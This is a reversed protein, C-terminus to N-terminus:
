GNPRQGLIERLRDIEALDGRDLAMRLEERVSDEVVASGAQVALAPQAIPLDGSVSPIPPQAPVNALSAAANAQRDQQRQLMLLPFNSWMYIDSEFPRSAPQIQLLSRGELNAANQAQQIRVQNLYRSEASGRPADADHQGAAFIRDFDRMLNRPALRRNSALAPFTIEDGILNSDSEGRKKYVIDGAKNFAIIDASEKDIIFITSTDQKYRLQLDRPYAKTPIEVTGNNGFTSDKKGNSLLRILVNKFSLPTYTLDKVGIQITRGTKRDFYAKRKNFYYGLEEPSSSKQSNNCAVSESANSSASPGYGHFEPILFSRQGNSGRMVQGPQILTNDIDFVPIDPNSDASYIYSGLVLFIVMIFKNIKM